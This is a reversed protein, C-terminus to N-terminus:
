SSLEEILEMEELPLVEINNIKVYRRWAQKAGWQTLFRCYRKVGRSAYWTTGASDLYEFVPGRKELRVYYRGSEKGKVLTGKLNSM